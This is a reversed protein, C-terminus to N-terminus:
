AAQGGTPNAASTPEDTRLYVVPAVEHPTCEDVATPDLDIDSEALLADIDTESLGDPSYGVDISECPLDVPRRLSGYKM